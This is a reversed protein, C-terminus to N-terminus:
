SLPVAEPLVLRVFPDTDTPTVVLDIRQDGLRDCISRKLQRRMPRDIKNSFCLLDIDGGRADDDARSGFLFTRACPDAEAIATLIVECEAESLRM